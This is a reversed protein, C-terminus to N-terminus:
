FIRDFRIGNFTCVSGNDMAFWLDGKRDQYIQWIHKTSLGDKETFNKMTTGDYRWAGTDRDGFWINGQKDEGIAFVHELSMPPSRYGGKHQSFMSILGQDKSFHTTTDGDYQWVGIGNNGIWLRGKSDEYLSRVHLFGTEKTLGLKQDDIVTFKDGDYGIAAAYTGFWLRGNKGSQFPTSVSYHFPGEQRSPTPFVHYTLEQGDYRYVGPQGEKQNYATMADGKFWLDNEAMKWHQKAEYNRETIVRIEKGDYVSLGVGTEFWILGDRDEHISRVQNHSLGDDITFYTLQVGDFRCVGEQNSGFWFNGKSDEFISRVSSTFNLRFSTDIKELNAREELLKATDSSNTQFCAQVSVMLCIILLLLPNKM